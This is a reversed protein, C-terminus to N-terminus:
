RESMDNKYVFVMVVILFAFLSFSMLPFTLYGFEFLFRQACDSAIGGSAPCPIVSTGGMQLYHNYLAVIAGLVSLAISYLAALRDKKWVAIVFIVLQPYLFVRQFWCLGCPAFGLVESYFLTLAIGGLAGATGLWLGWLAVADGIDRLDTVKKQLLFVVILVITAVQLGVAGLALIFNLLPVNFMM